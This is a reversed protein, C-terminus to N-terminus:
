ESLGPLKLGFFDEVDKLMENGYAGSWFGVVKGEPSIVYTSPTSRFNYEVRNSDSPNYYVPFSIDKEESYKYASDKQLSLGIFQYQNQTKEYLYKANQLNRECWICDPSFVYIITPKSIEKYDIKINEGKLNQVDLSSVMRGLIIQHERTENGILNLTSKLSKIELALFVNLFVSLILLLILLYKESFFDKIKPFQDLM